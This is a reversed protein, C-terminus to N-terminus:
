NKREKRMNENWSTYWFSHGCATAYAENMIHTCLISTGFTTLKNIENIMRVM